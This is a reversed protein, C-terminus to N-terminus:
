NLSWGRHQLCEHFQDSFFAGGRVDDFHNHGVQRNHKALKQLAGKFRNWIDLDNGRDVIDVMEEIGRSGNWDVNDEDARGHNLVRLAGDGNKLRKGLKVFIGADDDERLIGVVGFDDGEETGPGLTDEAAGVQAELEEALADSANMLPLDPCFVLQEGM